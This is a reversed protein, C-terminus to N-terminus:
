DIAKYYRRAEKLTTENDRALSPPVELSVYGDLGDTQEYIPMLTDCANRIDEFVLMEYIEEVSKGERIGKEIDEDYIVNGAIAKQFIAPNSTIGHVDRTDILQKLEGSRLIDRNLNDMWVSQGYDKLQKIPTNVAM